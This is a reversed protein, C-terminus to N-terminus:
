FCSKGSFENQRLSVDFIHKLNRLQLLMYQAFTWCYFLCNSFLSFNVAFQQIMYCASKNKFSMLFPPQVCWRDVWFNFHLVTRAGVCFEWRCFSIKISGIRTRFDTRGFAKVLSRYFYPLSPQLWFCLLLFGIWISGLKGSIRSNKPLIENYDHCFDCYLVM